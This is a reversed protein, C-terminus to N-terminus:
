WRGRGCALGVAIIASLLAASPEPVATAAAVSGATMGYENEWASLSGVSNNRQWVLFDNGDVDGDNDFDATLGAPEEFYIKDISFDITKDTVPVGEGDFFNFAQFSVRDLTETSPDFQPVPFMGGNPRAAEAEDFTEGVITHAGPALSSLGSFLFSTITDDGNLAPDSITEVLLEDLENTAGIIIDITMADTATNVGTLDVPTTMGVGRGALTSAPSTGSFKLSQDEDTLTFIQGQNGRTDPPTLQSNAFAKQAPIIGYDLVGVPVPTPSTFGFSDIEFDMNRPTSTDGIWNTSIIQISDIPVLSTDVGGGALDSAQDWTQGFVTHTGPGLQDLGFFNFSQGANGTFTNITAVILWSLESGPNNTFKLTAIDNSEDLGLGTATSFDIPNELVYGFGNNGMSNPGTYQFSDLNETKTLSSGSTLISYTGAPAINPKDDNEVLNITENLKFINGGVDTGFDFAEELTAQASVPLCTLGVLAFVILGSAKLYSSGAFGLNIRIM